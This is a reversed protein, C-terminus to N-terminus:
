EGFINRPVDMEAGARQCVADRLHQVTVAPHLGAKNQVAVHLSPPPHFASAFGCLSGSM